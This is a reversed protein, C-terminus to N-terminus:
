AGGEKKKPEEPPVLHIDKVQFPVRVEKREGRFIFVLKGNEHIRGRYSKVYQEGSSRGSSTHLSSERGEPSLAKVRSFTRGLKASMLIKLGDVDIRELMIPRGKLAEHKIVRRWPLSLPRDIEVATEPESYTLDFSGRVLGLGKFPKRPGRVDAYIDFQRENGKGHVRRGYRSYSSSRDRQLASVSVPRECSLEEGTDTVARTIIPNKATNYRVGEPYTVRIAIRMTKHVTEPKGDKFPIHDSWGVAIPVYAFGEAQAADIVPPPPPPPPKPTAYRGGQAFGAAALALLVAASSSM